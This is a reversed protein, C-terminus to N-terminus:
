VGRHDDGVCPGLIVSRDPNKLLRPKPEHAFPNVISCGFKAVNVFDAHRLPLFPL